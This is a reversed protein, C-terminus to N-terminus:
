KLFEPFEESLIAETKKLRYAFTKRGIGIKQAIAEDSTGDLRMDGIAIAEPMLENLRVLLQGMEESATIIDEILPSDDPLDDLWSREDGGENVNKYDLSLTDPHKCFPCYDCDCDCFMWKDRPCFCLGRRQQTRRYNSSYRYFAEFDEESVPEHSGDFNHYIYRQNENIKM